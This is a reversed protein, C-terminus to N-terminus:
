KWFRFIWGGNLGRSASGHLVDGGGGSAFGVIAIAMACALLIGIIGVPSLVLLLELVKHHGRQCTAVSMNKPFVISGCDMPGYVPVPIGFGNPTTRGTPVQYTIPWFLAAAELVASIIFLWKLLAKGDGNRVV